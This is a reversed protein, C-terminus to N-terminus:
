EPRVIEIADALRLSHVLRGAEDEVDIRSCLNIRGMEADYAILARAEWMARAAVQDVPMDVGEPDLLAEGNERLHFYLKSM